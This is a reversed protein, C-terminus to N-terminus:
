RDLRQISGIGMEFYTGRKAVESPVHVIGHDPVSKAQVGEALTLTAGTNPNIVIRNGNADRQVVSPRARQVTVEEGGQSLTQSLEAYVAANDPGEPDEVTDHLPATPQVEVGDAADQVAAEAEEAAIVAEIDVPEAPEAAIVAEIDVPEAPEAAPEVPEAPEAPAAEAPAAEAPTAEAPAISDLVEEATPKSTKTKAM